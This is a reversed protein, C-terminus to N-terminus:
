EIDRYKEMEQARKKFLRYETEFTCQRLISEAINYVDNSIQPFSLHKYEYEHEKLWILNSVTDEIGDTPFILYERYQTIEKPNRNILWELEPDSEIFEWEPMIRPKNRYTEIVRIGKDSIDDTVVFHESDFRSSNKSSLDTLVKPVPIRNEQLLAKLEINERILGSMKSFIEAYSFYKTDFGSKRIQETLFNTKKSLNVLQSQKKELERALSENKLQQVTRNGSATAGNLIECPYGLTKTMVELMRIHLKQLYTRNIADKACLRGKVSVHNEEEYKDIRKKMEDSLSDRDIPTVPLFDLHMHPTTEDKHVSANLVNERGWDSCFFEYATEFFKREDKPKVDQPLTLRLECFVVLNERDQHYYDKIKTKVKKADTKTFYYNLHTREPDIDENSHKVGDDPTRNNHQWIRGIANKPFKEIRM